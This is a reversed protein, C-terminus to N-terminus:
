AEASSRPLHCLEHRVQTCLISCGTHNACKSYTRDADNDTLDFYFAEQLQAANKAAHKNSSIFLEAHQTSEDYIEKQRHNKLEYTVKM